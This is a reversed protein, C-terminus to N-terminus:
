TKGKRDSSFYETNIWSIFLESVNLKLFAFSSSKAKGSTFYNQCCGPHGKGKREPMFAGRQKTTEGTKIKIKDQGLRPNMSACKVWTRKFQVFCRTSKKNAGGRCNSNNVNKEEEANKNIYSSSFLCGTQKAKTSLKTCLRCFTYKFRTRMKDNVIKWQIQTTQIKEM